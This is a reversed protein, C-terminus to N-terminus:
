GTRSFETVWYVHRSVRFGTGPHATRISYREAGGVDFIALVTRGEVPDPEGVEISCDHGAVRCGLSFIRRARPETDAEDRAADRLLEYLAEDDDAGPVFFRPVLDTAM